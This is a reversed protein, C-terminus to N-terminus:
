MPRSKIQKINGMFTDFLGRLLAQARLAAESSPRCQEPEPDHPQSSAWGTQPALQVEGRRFRRMFSDPNHHKNFAPCAKAIIKQEVRTAHEPNDCPFISVTWNSAFDPFDGIIQGIISRDRVHQRIRRLLGNRTSGVYLVGKGPAEIWYVLIKIATWRRAQAKEAPTMASHCIVDRMSITPFEEEMLNNYSTKQRM